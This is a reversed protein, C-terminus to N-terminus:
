TDPDTRPRQTTPDLTIGTADLFKLDPRYGIMAFVFDNELM